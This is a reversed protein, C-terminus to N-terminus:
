RSYETELRTVERGPYLEVPVVVFLYSALMTDDDNNVKNNVDTDMETDDDNDMETDDDNDMETDDDNDTAVGLELIFTCSTGDHPKSKVL